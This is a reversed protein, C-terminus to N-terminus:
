SLPSLRGKLLTILYVSLMQCSGLPNVPYYFWLVVQSGLPNVPYYFRLVVQSLTSMLLAEHM